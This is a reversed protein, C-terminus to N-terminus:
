VSGEAALRQLWKDDDGWRLASVRRDCNVHGVSSWNLCVEIKGSETEFYMERTTDWHQEATQGYVDLRDAFIETDLTYVINVSKVGNQACYDIVTKEVANELAKAPSLMKGVEHKKDRVVVEGDRFICATYRYYKKGNSTTKSAYAVFALAEADTHLGDELRILGRQM